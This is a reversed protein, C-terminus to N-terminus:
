RDDRQLARSKRGGLSQANKIRYHSITRRLTSLPQYPAHARVLRLLLVPWGQLATAITENQRKERSNVLFGNSSSLDSRLWSTTLCKKYTAILSGGITIRM